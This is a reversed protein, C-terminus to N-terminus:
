LSLHFRVGVVLADPHIGSPSVVYQLDPQWSVRPTIAAKYFFEFVTEHNTGSQFLETWALGTGVVDEDRSPILGTYVAGAAVRHSPTGRAVKLRWSESLQLLAVAGM